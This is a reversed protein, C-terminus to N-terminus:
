ALLTQKIIKKMLLLLTGTFPPCTQSIHCLNPSSFVWLNLISSNEQAKSNQQTKKGAPQFEMREKNEQGQWREVEEKHWQAKVNM